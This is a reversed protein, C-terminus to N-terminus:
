KTSFGLRNLLFEVDQRSVQKPNAATSGSSLTEQIIKEKAQLKKGKFPSIIKLCALLAKVRKTLDMGVIGSLIEYKQGMAEKNLKISPIFCMACVLGHPINYIAGLPHAIGHIVGLRSHAFAIGGFYSGLLLNSLSEETSSEYAPLINSNILEISKLAFTSSFWSANRSIFSEYGQVLADMGSYSIVCAPSGKLLEVDLIVKKALFSRDRISAKVKNKSNIIVANSTVESGTGATTPVAVFPIGKEKLEGGKQYFEPKQGANFLGASAKALDLVSGGGIGTIWQAKISKAKKILLSIEDLDPEGGARCFSEVKASAPFSSLIKQKKGSAELSKGHALIGRSGFELCEDAIRLYANKKFITKEPLFVEEPFDM